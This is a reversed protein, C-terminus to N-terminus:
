KQQKLQTSDKCTSTYHEKKTTV